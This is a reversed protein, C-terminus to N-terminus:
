LKAVQSKGMYLETSQKFPPHVGQTYLWEELELPGQIKIHSLQSSQNVEDSRAPEIQKHM